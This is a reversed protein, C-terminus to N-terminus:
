KGSTTVRTKEKKWNMKTMTKDIKTINEFLQSKTKNKKRNNM